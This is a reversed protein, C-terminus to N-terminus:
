FKVIQVLKWGLAERGIKTKAESGACTFHKQRPKRLFNTIPCNFNEPFCRTLSEVGFNVSAMVHDFTDISCQYMCIVCIM